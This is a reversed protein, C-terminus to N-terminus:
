FSRVKSLSIAQWYGGRSLHSDSASYCGLSSSRYSDIDIRPLLCPHNQSWPCWWLSIKQQRVLKV